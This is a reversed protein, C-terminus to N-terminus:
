RRLRRPRPAARLLHAAEDRGEVQPETPHLNHLALKQGLEFFGECRQDEPAVCFFYPSFDEPFGPAFEKQWKADYTGVYPARQPWGFEYGGFGAPAPRASPSTILNNPDEINPLPQREVGDVFEAVTGKGHPNQDFGEGGFARSWGLEMKSFPQPESPATAHWWRDGVVFLSKDIGGLQVRASCAGAEGGPPYAHGHVLVEGCPKPMGEDLVTGTGMAEASLKWLNVEPIPADPADFAFCALASVCFRTRGAIEFPRQLLSLAM